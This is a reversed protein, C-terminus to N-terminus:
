QVGEDEELLLAMRVLQAVSKVQMKWMVRSRHTEVTKPSMALKAAVAKNPHGAVVLEMVERERPTLMGVRERIEDVKARRKREEVDRTIAQRIRELFVQPNYPKEIFDTAGNQLARVAMPVDGFGTVIIVPLRINRETLKEQLELGSMGQLRVDLVLCGPRSPDYVELFEEASAYVEVPLGVSTMLGVLSERLSSDDDVVFVAPERASTVSEM